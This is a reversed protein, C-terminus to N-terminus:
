GVDGVVEVKSEISGRKNMNLQHHAFETPLKLRQGDAYYCTDPAFVRVNMGGYAADIAAKEWCLRAPIKNAHGGYGSM